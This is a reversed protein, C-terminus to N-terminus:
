PARLPLGARIGISGNGQSIYDQFVKVLETAKRDLNSDLDWIGMQKLYYPPPHSGQRYAWTVLAFLPWWTYGVLPIGSERTRKTAAVSDELWARRRAVSNVSATESIFLPAHYREWYQKSIGEILEADAYPMKIRFKGATSRSLTKDTFMPYLNIGILPLELAHAGFWALDAESLNNRLVWDYLAHGPKVRGSVLDLALFVIEQRFEAEAVLHPDDARYRDTADVHVPLINPDVERLTEVTRVIGRCVGRMVALFGRWSRKFPPWWGIRGCYWATIRPENLPTYAHVRGKYRQAVNGAYEAMYEAFDPNLYAGEIWAPLGYHVLDVIPQIGLSLMREIAPDAADFNWVGKAPNIRHWPIGYRAAKVGLEAILDIDESWREYHQTLAYEDLTRGSAPWPATIFTDEIGTCWFFTEPQLLEGRGAQSLTIM